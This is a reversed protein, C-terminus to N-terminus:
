VDDFFFIALPYAALRLKQDVSRFLWLLPFVFTM